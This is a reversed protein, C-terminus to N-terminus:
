GLAIKPTTFPNDGITDLVRRPDLFECANAPHRLITFVSAAVYKM